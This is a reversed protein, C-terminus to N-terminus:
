ILNGLIFISHVHVHMYSTCRYEINMYIQNLVGHGKVHWEIGPAQGKCFWEAYKRTCKYM